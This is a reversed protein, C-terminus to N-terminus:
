STAWCTAAPMSSAASLVLAGAGLLGGVLATGQSSLLKTLREQIQFKSNLKGLESNHDKLTNM